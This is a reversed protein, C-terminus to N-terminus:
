IIFVEGAEPPKTEQAGALPKAGLGRQPACGGYDLGGGKGVGGMYMYVM